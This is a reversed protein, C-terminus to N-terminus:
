IGGRRRWTRLSGLESVSAARSPRPPGQVPPSEVVITVPGDNVLHVQMMAGFEGTPVPRGLGAELARVVELYRRAGEPGPAAEVFSPRFGKRADGYLTFQSVVLIGGGTELVSRNMKGAEDAMIRLGLLKHAMWAVERDGDARHIGLLVCLGPGIAGVTRGAVEVRAETVRQVVARM